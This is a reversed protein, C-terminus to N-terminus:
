EFRDGPAVPHGNLFASISVPKKGPVQVERLSLAGQGCSVVLRKPEVILATGPAVKPPGTPQDETEVQTKLVILRVPPRDRPLWLTDALPGPRLARVHNHITRAPQSWDIRSEEKRLKPARTAQAADQPLEEVSGALLRELTEEVLPAGLQALRNELEGATEDPDIPTRAVALMGGADLKPTMRIITVGTVTEGRQIARAIPAAGRYAPLISAHLNIAALTPVALAEASLIQGYAATVVLDPEYRRLQDLSEPVNISEPQFVVIGRKQAAVKIAAPILEQRRGQPRDPQTVLAVMDWGRECLREFTPLAFEGTGLMVVRCRSPTRSM